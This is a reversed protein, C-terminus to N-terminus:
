DKEGMDNMAARNEKPSVTFIV